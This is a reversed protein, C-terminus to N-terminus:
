LLRYEALLRWWGEISLNKEGDLFHVIMTPIIIIVIIVTAVANLVFIVVTINNRTCTSLQLHHPRATSQSGLQHYSGETKIGPAACHVVWHLSYKEVWRLAYKEIRHKTNRTALPSSPVHCSQNVAVVNIAGVSLINIWLQYLWIEQFIDNTCSYWARQFCVWKIITHNDTVVAIRM